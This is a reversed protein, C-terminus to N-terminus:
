RTLAVRLRQAAIAAFQEGAALHLPGFSHPPHAYFNITARSPGVAALCVSLISRYGHGAVMQLYVPWRDDSLTDNVITSSGRALSNFVPGGDGPNQAEEIVGIVPLTHAMSVLQRRTHVTIGCEVPLPLFYGAALTTVTNLLTQPDTKEGDIVRLRDLADTRAVTETMRALKPHM